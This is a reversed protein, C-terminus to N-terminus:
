PQPPLFRYATILVMMPMVLSWLVIALMAKYLKTFEPHDDVPEKHGYLLKKVCWMLMGVCFGVFFITMFWGTSIILSHASHADM